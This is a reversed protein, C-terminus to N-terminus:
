NVITTVFTVLELLFVYYTRSFPLVVVMILGGFIDDQSDSVFGISLRKSQFLAMMFMLLVVMDMLFVMKVMMVMLLVVMAMLLVVMAMLLVVMVM